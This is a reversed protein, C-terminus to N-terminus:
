YRIFFFYCLVHHENIKPPIIDTPHEAHGRLGNVNFSLPQWATGGTGGAHCVIVQNPAAMAPASLTILGLGLVGLTAFTRKM